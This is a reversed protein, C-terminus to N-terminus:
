SVDCKEIIVIGNLTEYIINDALIDNNLEILYEKSGIM